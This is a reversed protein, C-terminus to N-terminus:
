RCLVQWVDHVGKEFINIYEEDTTRDRFAPYLFGYEPKGPEYEGALPGMMCLLYRYVEESGEMWEKDKGKVPVDYQGYLMFCYWPYEAPLREGLLEYFIDLFADNKLEAEKMGDLLQWISGPKKEAATIKYDKLEENTKSLLLTKALNLNKTRESPSLKLFHTNFTGDVYGEEDFYAGAIRSVSSRDPTMRRTLELMDERNIM